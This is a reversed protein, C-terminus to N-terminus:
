VRVKPIASREFLPGTGYPRVRSVGDLALPMAWYAHPNSNLPCAVIDMLNTRYGYGSVPQGINLQMVDRKASRLGTISLLDVL